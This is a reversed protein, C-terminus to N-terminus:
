YDLKISWDFFSLADSAKTPIMEVIEYSAIMERKFPDKELIQELAPRSEITALIVGGTRPEKRGCLQFYGLRYNRELFEIHESIYKDISEM